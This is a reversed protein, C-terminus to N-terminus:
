SASAGSAGASTRASGSRSSCRRPRARAWGSRRAIKHTAAARTKDPASEASEASDAAKKRARMKRGFDARGDAGAGRSMALGPYPYAAFASFPDPEMGLVTYLARPPLRAHLTAASRLVAEVGWGERDKEKAITAASEVFLGAAVTARFGGDEGASEVVKWRLRVVDHTQSTKSVNKLAPLASLRAHLM